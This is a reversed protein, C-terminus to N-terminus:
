AAASVQAPTAQGLISAACREALMVVPANTNGSMLLPFASADAVRLGAVGRVKLDTNLVAAPDNDAGMRCTGAPHYVTKAHSRVHAEIVSDPVEAQTAPALEDSVVRALSPARLIRRALKVGRVLTAVDEPASLYRGDFTAPAEPDASALRVVGRSAPRLFCPNLSIGHGPLPDRGVDGVLTPLVHFQIDPRGSGATDFFGGSEVVNSTLLGTRFLKWQVGHMFAAWGQDNGLLSIPERCQGYVSCELHDQFNEGVGALDQHVAVGFQRLQAAPGVGSLLLLKPTALAGASLVVEKKARAEHMGSSDRWSVGVARGGEILVRHVHAGTVVTLNPRGKVAALYTAATSAREGEHTTTQYFGVGQQLEGNFDQNYALGCEQAAKVFALSLPHRFRTDSVKLPGTTGHLDGSLRQNCEALKFWPLV